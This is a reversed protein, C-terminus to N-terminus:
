EIMFCIFHVSNNKEAKKIICFFQRFIEPLKETMYVKQKIRHIVCETKQGGAMGVSSVARRLCHYLLSHELYGM